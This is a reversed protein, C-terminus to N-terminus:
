KNEHWYFGYDRKRLEYSYHEPHNKPWEYDIKPFVLFVNDMIDRSVQLAEIIKPSYDVLYTTKHEIYYYIEPKFKALYHIVVYAEARMVQDFGQGSDPTSNCYPCDFLEILDQTNGWFIQDHPHFPFCPYIGLIGIINRPKTRDNAHELKRHRHKNYFDYLVCMDKIYIKQDGRLKVSFEATARKLGELSSKIQRNRNQFGPNEVDINKVIIIRPNDTEIDDTVWCSIIVNKVFHMNLYYEAVSLTYATASGQLVIDITEESM